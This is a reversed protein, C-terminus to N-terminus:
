QTLLPQVKRRRALGLGALGLGIVALTAPEPTITVGDMTAIIGYGGSFRQMQGFNDANFMASGGDWNITFLAVEEGNTFDVGFINNWGFFGLNDALSGSLDWVLNAGALDINGVRFMDTIGALSSVDFQQGADLSLNGISGTGTANYTGGGYVLDNIWGTNDVTGGNM